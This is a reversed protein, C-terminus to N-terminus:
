IQPYQCQCGLTGDYPVRFKLVALQGRNQRSWGLNPVGDNIDAFAAIRILNASCGTSCTSSTVLRYTFFKLNQQALLKGRRAERFSLFDKDYSILFSFGGISQGKTLTSDVADVLSNIGVEVVNGPYAYLNDISLRFKVGSASAVDSLILLSGWVFLQRRLFKSM